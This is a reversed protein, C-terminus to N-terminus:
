ESASIDLECYLTLLHVYRECLDFVLLSVCGFGIAGIQKWYTKLRNREPQDQPSFFGKVKVFHGQNHQPTSYKYCARYQLHDLLRRMELLAGLLPMKHYIGRDLFIGQVFFLISCFRTFEDRIYESLWCFSCIYISLSKSLSIFQKCTANFSQLFLIKKRQAPQIFNLFGRDRNFSSCIICVGKFRLFKFARPM